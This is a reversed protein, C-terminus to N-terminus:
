YGTKGGLDVSYCHTAGLCFLEHAPINADNRRTGTGTWPLFLVPDGPTCPPLLEVGISRAAASRVLRPSIATEGEGEGRRLIPHSPLPAARNKVPLRRQMRTTWAQQSERRRARSRDAVSHYAYALKFLLM